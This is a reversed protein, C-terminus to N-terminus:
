ETKYFFIKRIRFIGEPQQLERGANTFTANETLTSGSYKLQKVQELESNGIQQKEWNWIKKGSTNFLRGDIISKM